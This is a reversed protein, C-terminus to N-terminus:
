GDLMESFPLRFVLEGSIDEIEIAYDRLNQGQAAFRDRLGKASWALALGCPHVGRASIISEQTTQSKQVPFHLMRLIASPYENAFSRQFETFLCLRV